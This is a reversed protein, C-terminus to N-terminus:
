EEEDIGFVQKFWGHKENVAGLVRYDVTGQARIYIPQVPETQGPRYVRGIAQKNKAPSWSQDLFIARNAAALNISEAGLDLTSLFVQYEKRWWPGDKNWLAYRQREGMEAKMHLFPVKAKTLRKALLELPAKFNSFVVVQDRRDGDWELGEIVEMAADLKSSPETLEVEIVRKELEPVFEDRIVKPTAVCIQRLRNLMSLVTPSHLPVGQADLTYLYEAIQKYMREQVPSLGVPVVTDPLLGINPFCELMTRRVGVKNVLEKFEVERSRKIGVIKRYGGVNDEECFHERFKWYGTGNVMNAHPSDRKGGYLFDLLSWIEAPNNVFGTGTMIHRYQAKLKKINRTWQADPNKIRHAEDVVIMDWHKKMLEHCKPYKMQILGTEEDVVPRQISRGAIEITEKIQQPQCAKNTFCNYHALVVVPRMYLPNPLQVNWPTVRSGLILQNKTTSVTFIDWEPLVEWLSELYPGKGTKTSIVLVRPNPIHKTKLEWLWEATSTKFSNHVIIGNAAFNHHPAEMVLDYVREPGNIKIDMVRQKHVGLTGFGHKKAEMSFHDAYSMVQLNSPANNSKNEDKHHVHEVETIPRGLEKEMVLIHEYVHGSRNARQHYRQFVRVYGDKDIFRGDGLSQPRHQRLAPIGLTPLHRGGVILCERGLMNQAEIWGDETLVQHDATLRLKEGFVTTLTITEKIGSDAIALVKHLRVRGNIFSHAYTPIEPKWNTNPGTNLGNFAKYAWTMDTVFGKGARSIHIKTIGSVCGMESWNASGDPIESMYAIDDRQFERQKFKGTPRPKMLPKRVPVVFEETREAQSM